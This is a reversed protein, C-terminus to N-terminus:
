VFGYKVLLFDVFFNVGYLFCNFKDYKGICRIYFFRVSKMVMCVVVRFFRKFRFNLCSKFYYFVCM